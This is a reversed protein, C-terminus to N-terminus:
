FLGVKKKLMQRRWLPLRLYAQMDLGFVKSFEEPALYYEKKTMDLGDEARMDKLKNYPIFTEVTKFTEDETLSVPIGGWAKAADSLYSSPVERIKIGGKDQLPKEQECADTVENAVEVDQVEEQEGEEEGKRDPDSTLQLEQECADTVENAVEVDQEPPQEVAQVEEQEGEEEGERDPDSTLQMEQECADTVENAVEVDQVEEQEGEEEGKRDPDSTLQMEQECADTVENAVEVDQEPPQEVAQVEEQEGEEEGKRDTEDVRGADGQSAAIKKKKNKNKKNKKKTSPDLAEFASSSSEVLPVERVAEEQDKKEEMRTQPVGFQLARGIAM